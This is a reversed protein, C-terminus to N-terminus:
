KIVIKVLLAIFWRFKSTLINNLVQIDENNLAHSYRLFILYSLAGTLYIIPLYYPSVLFINLGVIVCSMIVSGCLGKRLAAKDYSLGAIQNLKHTPYVFFVLRAMARATAAGVVGAFPITSVSIVIQVALALSDAKLLTGTFGAARLLNNFVSGVSTLTIAMVIIVTAYASDSFREGLVGALLTPASSSIAFGLPLYFLFLYRSAFKSSNRLSDIGSKGYLRSTYPLLAQDLSSLVIFITNAIFVAPSYIGVAYLSSLIMLLYVDVRTALFNLIMSGYLPISYGLLPKLDSWKSKSNRIKPLLSYIYMVLTIGDGIILGLVVGELGLGLFILVISAPFKIVSNIVSIITVQLFKMSTYLLFMTFTALSFLFVDLSSLRILPIYKTDHFLPESIAPAVFYLIAAFVASSVIGIRFILVYLGKAREPEGSGIFHSIFRTASRALGLSSLIIFMATLTQIGTVFGLDSVTPLFRAIFVFFIAATLSAILDKITLYLMGRGTTYPSFGEVEEEEPM